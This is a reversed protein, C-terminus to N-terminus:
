PKVLVVYSMTQGNYNAAIEWCGPEPISVGTMMAMNGPSEGNPFRVANAHQSWILPAPGDLRRAVVVLHPDREREWDFGVRWYVLKASIHHENSISFGERRVYTWLQESGYWFGDPPATIRYPPPPVFPQTVTQATVPCQASAFPLSGATLIAFLLYHRM